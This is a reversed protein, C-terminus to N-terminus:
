DGARDNKGQGLPASMRSTFDSIMNSLYNKEQRMSEYKQKMHSNEVELRGIKDELDNIKKAKDSLAENHKQLLSGYKQQELDIVSKLEEIEATMTGQLERYDEMVQDVKLNKETLKQELELINKEREDIVKNLNKLDRNLRDVHGASHTLRDQLEYISLEAHQRAQIIQEVAFVLDLSKKDMNAKGVSAMVSQVDEVFVEDAREEGQGELPQTSANTKKLNQDAQKDTTEKKKFFPSIM